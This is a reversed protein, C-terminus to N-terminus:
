FNFLWMLAKAIVNPPRTNDAIIGKGKMEIELHSLATSSVINNPGIDGPRIVGRVILHEHQNNMFVEREAELVLNGAPLVAVVQGTLSTTFSTNSATQGSGKIASSSQAAFLPNAAAPTQGFIGTVGSATNFARSGTVAGSQAAATQVSVQIVVTDNLHAAKYDAAINGLANSPTWLSGATRFEQTEIAHQDLKALYEARLQASDNSNTRHKAAYAPPIALGGAIFVSFLRM